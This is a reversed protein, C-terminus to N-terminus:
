LIPVPNKTSNPPNPFLLPSTFTASPYVAPDPIIFATLEIYVSTRAIRTRLSEVIVLVPFTVTIPTQNFTVTFTCPSTPAIQVPCSGFLASKVDLRATMYAIRATSPNAMVTIATKVELTNTASSVFGDEAFEPVVITGAQNPLDKASIYM